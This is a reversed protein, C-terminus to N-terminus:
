FRYSLGTYVGVTYPRTEYIAENSLSNLMIKMTPEVSLNLRKGLTYNLGLGLSSSFTLPNLGEIKGTGIVENNNVLEVNNSTLINTNIGGLVYLGIGKNIISYSLILPVEIYGAQQEFETNRTVENAYTTNQRNALALETGQPMEINALGINTAVVTNNTEPISNKESEGPSYMADTGFNENLWNHGTFSVGLSANRQAIEGYNVGSHIALRKGTRYEFKVGGTVNTIYQPTAGSQNVSYIIDAKDTGSGGQEFRYAPSAQIGLLWQGKNKEDDNEPMNRLNAEIIKRDADSFGATNMAILERSPKKSKLKYLGTPKLFALIGKIKDNEVSEIQQIKIPTTKGKQAPLPSTDKLTHAFNTPEQETSLENTQYDKEIGEEKTAAKEPKSFDNNNDITKIEEAYRTETETIKESFYWGAMFALLLAAASSFAIIWIARKKRKRTDMDAAIGDWIGPPPVVKHGELKSRFLQDINEKNTNNQM